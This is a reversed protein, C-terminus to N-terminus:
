RTGEKRRDEGVKYATLFVTSTHVTWEEDCGDWPCPVWDEMRNGPVVESTDPFELDNGCKPCTVIHKDM